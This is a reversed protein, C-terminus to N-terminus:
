RRIVPLAAIMVTESLKPPSNADAIKSLLKCPKAWNVVYHVGKCKAEHSCAALCENFGDSTIRLDAM